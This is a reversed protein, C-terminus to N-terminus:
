ETKLVDKLKIYCTKLSESEIPQQFSDLLIISYKRPCISFCQSLMDKDAKLILFYITNLIVTLLVDYDIDNADDTDDEFDNKKQSKILREELCKSAIFHFKLLHQAIEM